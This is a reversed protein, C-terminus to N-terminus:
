VRTTWAVRGSDQVRLSVCRTDVLEQELGRNKAESSRYAQELQEVVSQTKLHADKLHANEREQAALDSSLRARDEELEQLISSVM